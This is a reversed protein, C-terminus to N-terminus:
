VGQKTLNIHVSGWRPTKSGLLARLIEDRGEQWLVRQKRKFALHGRQETTVKARLKLRDDSSLKPQEERTPQYVKAGFDHALEHVTEGGVPRDLTLVKFAKSGHYYFIYKTM